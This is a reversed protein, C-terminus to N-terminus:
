KSWRGPSLAELGAISRTNEILDTVIRGTLASMTMGVHGHGHAHIIRPDDPSPGIIPLSDPTSPRSGVWRRTAEGPERVLMRTVRELMAYRAPDPPRAEGGLEVTGAARLGESMPTIMFGFEPYCVPGNLRRSPTAFLVHYGREANVFPALGFPQCLKRAGIGAAVVAREHIAEEGECTLIVGADGSRLATVPAARYIGGRALFWEALAVAYAEPTDFVWHDELLIGGAYLPALHPERAKVEDRGLLRANAGQRRRLEMGPRAAALAEESRHLYLSGRASKLHATGTLAFLAEQAPGAQRMLAGLETVIRDHNRPDVGAAM